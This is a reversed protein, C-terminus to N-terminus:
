PALDVVPEWRRSTWSDILAQQVSVVDVAERFGPSFGGERTLAPAPAPAPPPPIAATGADGGTSRFSMLYFAIEYRGLDVALDVATMGFPNRAEVDAGEEVSQKVAELDNGNIADFLRKNIEAATGSPPPPTGQARTLTAPAAALGIALAMVALSKWTSRILM